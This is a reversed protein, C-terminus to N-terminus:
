PVFQEQEVEADYPNDGQEERPKGKALVDFDKVTVEIGIHKEGGKSEWKKIRQVGEVLVRTGTQVMDNMMEATREWAVCNYWDTDSNGNKGFNVAVSFKCVLKGQPTYQAEIQGVNGLLQITAKKM